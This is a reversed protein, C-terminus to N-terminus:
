GLAIKLREYADKLIRFRDNRERYDPQGPVPHTKLAERIFARRLAGLQPSAGPPFGFIRLLEDRSLGHAERGDFDPGARGEDEKWRERQRRAEGERRRREEAARRAAAADRARKAAEDLVTALWEVRGEFKELEEPVDCDADDMLASRSQALDSLLDACTAQDHQSLSAWGGAAAAELMEKREAATRFRWTLRAYRRSVELMAKMADLDALTAIERFTAIESTHRAFAAFRYPAPSREFLNGIENLAVFLELLGRVTAYEGYHMHRDLLARQRKSVLDLSEEVQCVFLVFNRFAALEAADRRRVLTADFSYNSIFAMLAKSPDGMRDLLTWYGMPIQDLGLWEFLELAARQRLVRLVPDESTLRPDDAFRLRVRRPADASGREIGRHRGPVSFVPDVLRATRLFLYWAAKATEVLAGVWRLGRTPVGGM